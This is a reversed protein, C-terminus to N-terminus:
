AILDASGLDGSKESGRHVAGRMGGGPLGNRGSAMGPIRRLKEKKIKVPRHGVGELDGVADEVVEVGLEAELVERALFELRRAGHPCSM